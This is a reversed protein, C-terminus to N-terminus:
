TTMSIFHFKLHNLAIFSPNILQEQSKGMNTKDGVLFHKIKRFQSFAILLGSYKSLILYNRFNKQSKHSYKREM